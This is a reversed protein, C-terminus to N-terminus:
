REKLHEITVRGQFPAGAPADTARVYTKGDSQIAWPLVTVNAPLTVSAKRGYDSRTREAYLKWMTQDWDPEPLQPVEYYVPDAPGTRADEILRSYLLLYRGTQPAALPVLRGSLAENGALVGDGSEAKAKKEEPKRDLPVVVVDPQGAQAVVRGLLEPDALVQPPIQDRALHLDGNQDRVVPFRHGEVNLDVATGTAPPGRNHIEGQFGRQTVGGKKITLTEGPRLIGDLGGISALVVSDSSGTKQNPHAYGKGGPVHVYIKDGKRIVSDVVSDALLGDGVVGSRKVERLLEGRARSHDLFVNVTVTQQDGSVELRDHTQGGADSITAKDKTSSFRTSGEASAAEVGGTVRTVKDPSVRPATKPIDGRAALSVGGVIKRTYNGEVVPDSSLVGLSETRGRSGRPDFKTSEWRQFTLRPGQQLAWDPFWRNHTVPQEDLFGLLQSQDRADELWTALVSWKLIENLRGYEPEWRAVEDYHANWWGVFAASSPNPKGEKSGPAAFSRAFVRTSVPAFRLTDGADHIRDSRPGFWIRTWPDRDIQAREKDSLPIALQPMFGSITWPFEHGIDLAWLKATLDAYFLVMGAETGSLDCDYRAEQYVPNASGEPKTDLSFGCVTRKDPRQAEKRKLGDILAQQRKAEAGIRAVEEATGSYHGYKANFERVLGNIRALPVRWKADAQYVEAAHVLRFRAASEHLLGARGSLTLHGDTVRAETLDDVQDLFTALDGTSTVAASFYGREPTYSSSTPETPLRTVTARPAETDIAYQFTHLAGSLTGREFRITDLLAGLRRQRVLADEAPVLAMIDGNPLLCWRVPGRQQSVLSANEVRRIKIAGLASAAERPSQGYSTVLAALM